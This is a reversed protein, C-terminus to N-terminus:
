TVFHFHPCPAFNNAWDCYCGALVIVKFKWDTELVKVTIYLPVKGYDLRAMQLGMSIDHAIKTTDTETIVLTIKM